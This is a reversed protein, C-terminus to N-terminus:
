TSQTLGLREFFSGFNVEFCFLLWELMADYRGAFHLSFIGDLKPSKARGSDDQMVVCTARAFHDCFFDTDEETIREAVHSLAKTFKEVTISDVIEDMSERAPADTRAVPARRKVEGAASAVETLAPMMLKAFRTFVKRGRVADLQTVEYDHEGIRKTRKELGAM